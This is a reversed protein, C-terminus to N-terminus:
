DVTLRKYVTTTGAQLRVLYVGSAVHHLDLETRAGSAPLALLHQQVTQGLANLLTLEVKSAGAIAPVQVTCTSHAPNPYVLVAATLAASATATITVTVAASAASACGTASTTVVTYSGNSAASTVVYTPGTAGPIATPGFYWQNGTAASSTLTGAPSQTIVPTAPLPEVTVATAASTASCGAATTGVVTYSGGATATISATTAGNSWLYTDAGSATLVVSGGQCFSTAGAAAISVTPVANITAVVATRPGECGSASAASVYYTTTANLVPTTYTAAAAGNIPTGGIAQTYWMYTGGTPTGSATLTLSGPGCNATPTAVSPAAPLPNVTVTTAVPAAVCGAAVTGTVTYTGSTSVTISATTAGTSWTYFNAGTATLVVSGGQCFSTPSTTTVTVVPLASITAVVATRPSECGGTGVVSVYYTTTANLVPTTYSGGSVGAIATGGTATPYWAYTTGTPAGSASLTLSGAACSAAGTTAPAAPTPNVTVTTAASTAPCGAASTGTVSYSGSTSVTISATTAGTSWQYTAVGSATLTVSGGSCFTTPGAAAISVTPVANITAVVATRPSQCGSASVTSVYYTTTAALSPTTYSAATAGGIATGGTAQTYWAYSGGTLTGSANLVVNGPGCNAAPTTTPASPLPNVTVTTATSTAPCGATSAGTVTYSGSTTVTITRTTAGTSWVYSNAGNATLVVSGGQCFDVPGSADIEVLPVANITAVVESRPGECGGSTLASVFYPTTATLSPTTYNTALTVVVPTGGTPQTYWAYTGGAPAGSATLTVSGTGCRSAPTTIPASPLPTVTVVTAASTASCGAASTGTVAYSGGTTVTISPATSGNSWQYTAAGSATLVVSGGQCFTTSTTTSITVVPVANIVASVLTRPGQCAANGSGTSIAVYYPTTVSLSPTTYTAATAGAIATGGTAQTYWAYTGGAPAGSATLTLSGAGCRSAPTTATTPTYQVCYPTTGTITGGQTSVVVPGSTAGAPVTFTLTTGGAGVTVGAITVGNITVTTGGSVFGTGTVTVVTGVPGTAPSIGGITPVAYLGNGSLNVVYTGLASTLRLTGTQAGVTTPSFTVNVSATGGAPVTTPAPGSVAFNGTTTVGTLTLAGSGPNALIFTAAASTSGVTQNGFNYATGNSPYPFGGQTVVLQAAVTVTFNTASTATGGPTTVAILGTSAGNPVTFTISTGTGNVTFGNVTVGNLTLATAGTLNAGTVTVTTGVAGSAPTFSAITPALIGLLVSVTNAGSNMAALDLRGDGNVDALATSATGLGTAFDTRTGFTGAGTALLVSANNTGQNATIIDFRGDGNVDALDVDQPTAGTNYDTRALYGSGTAAASLLVSVGNVSNNGTVIDLRGDANLDGLAVYFPTLATAYDVRAAFNGAGTGLLVSVSNDNLNSTVIDLRGDNNVDGVAVGNPNTGTVYDTPTGFIGNSLNLYVSVTNGFGATANGANSVVIDLRGDSNMDGVTVLGPVNSAPYQTPVGLGAGTNLLVSVSNTTSNAVVVDLRSDGNMDGLVIGLPGSGAAYDVRTGFAGTSSGPFVSVTNDTTNAVVIDPRNDGTIDGMVMDGPNTGSTYAVPAGFRGSSATTATTFQYTYPVAVAGTTSQVTSPVTVSVTEGPLFVPSTLPLTATTGSITSLGMTRQGKGLNGFVRINNSALLAPTASFTVAINSALPANVVNAVPSRSTVSFTAPATCSVTAAWGNYETNVDSIFVVTLQGTANTATVTGPSVTGTYTGILTSAASPGDYISLRDWNQELEFSTFALRVKAGATAPSFVKTYNENSLYTGAAGGSDYFTGSCTTVPTNNMLFTNTTVCSIAAAFGSPTQSVDSTFVVTLQGTANTATVTGPSNTSTYTGIPTSATSPGDYIVLNDFGNELEFSSFTLRMKAGATSPTLTKIYTENNYYPDTPGGSDYLTGSCATVPDNNMLYQGATTVVFNTVSTATGGNSTVGIPGTVAGAPVIATIQTSNFNGSTVSVGGITVYVPNIFPGGTIIVTSGVPGGTPAFSTISTQAQTSQVLGISLLLVLLWALPYRWVPFVMRGSPRLAPTFLQKM